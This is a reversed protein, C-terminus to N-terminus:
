ETPAHNRKGDEGAEGIWSAPSMPGDNRKEIRLIKAKLREFAVKIGEEGAAAFCLRFFGCREAFCYSGRTLLVKEAAIREWLNMEEEVGGGGDMWRRMDVWFFLGAGAPFFGAGIERLMGGVWKSIKRLRRRNEAVYMEVWEEDTLMEAVTWQTQRSVGALYALAPRLASLVAENESYVVGVRGGSWCFDKSMTWILHVDEGLQGGLARAVSCFEKGEGYVSLAYAEDFVVHLGRERAWGVIELIMEESLVEGTPNNPSTIMVMRVRSNEGGARQWGEELAEVSVRCMRDDDHVDTRAVVIEADTRRRMDRKFGGYGPGPVLVQDGPDTLVSTLLDTCAGAGSVAVFNSAVCEQHEPFFYKNFLRAVQELFHLSGHSDDYVHWSLPPAPISSLKEHVLPLSAANEAISLDVCGTPNSPAFKDSRAAYAKALSVPINVQLSQGRRSLSM